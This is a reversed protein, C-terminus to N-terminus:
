SRPADLADVEEALELGGAVRGLHLNGEGEVDVTDSREAGDGKERMDMLQM